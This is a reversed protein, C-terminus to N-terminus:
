FPIIHPHLCLCFSVFVSCCVMVSNNGFLARFALHGFMYGAFMTVIVQVGFGLQTTYSSFPEKEKDEQVIDSVLANYAKQDAVEQLKQLREKLEKSKERPKPRDYVFDIGSLLSSLRPRRSPDMQIWIDRILTYPIEQSSIYNKAVLCCNLSSTNGDSVAVKLFGQIAPTTKLVLGKFEGMDHVEPLPRALAPKASTEPASTQSESETVVEMM